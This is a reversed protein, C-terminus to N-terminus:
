ERLAVCWAEVARRMEVPKEMPIWHHADLTVVQGHPLAALLRATAAPDTFTSGASLLTLTPAQLTHLDPWPASVAVLAQLYNAVPLIRLDEFPSAYRRVLPASSALAAMAARTERDLERLDLSPFHRRRWGLCNILRLLRAVARLIPRLPLTVALSGRLTQRPMPEVLILGATSPAHREAYRLAINAGLCHGMLVARAYGEHALIQAIDDCWRPIDLKGRAMSRGHGRLDLRLIDWTHRLETAELFESWRTMNSAMGHILVLVRRKGQPQWLGYAIDVGDTTRLSRQHEM